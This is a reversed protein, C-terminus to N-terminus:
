PHTVGGTINDIQREALMKFVAEPKNGTLELLIELATNADAPASPREVFVTDTMAVVRAIESAQAEQTPAEMTLCEILIRLAAILTDQGIDEPLVSIPKGDAIWQSYPVFRVHGGTIRDHEEDYGFGIDRLFRVPNNRWEERAIAAEGGSTMKTAIEVIEDIFHKVTYGSTAGNVVVRSYRQLKAVHGDNYLNIMTTLLTSYTQADHAVVPLLVVDAKLLLATNATKTVGTGNGTDGFLACFQSEVVGLMKLASVLSFQNKSNDPNSLLVFLSQAQAHQGLKGGSCKRVSNVQRPNMIASDLMVEVDNRQVDVRLNVTGDNENGEVLLTATQTLWAYLVALLSILATKGAGGKSAVVVITRMVKKSLMRLVSALERYSIEESIARQIGAQRVEQDELRRQAINPNFLDIARELISQDSGAFREAGDATFHRPASEPGRVLDCIERLVPAFADSQCFELVDQRTMSPRTIAAKTVEAPAAPPRAPPPPTAVPHTEITQSM